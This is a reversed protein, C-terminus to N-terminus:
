IIIGEDELDKFEETGAEPDEDISIIWKILKRTTKTVLEKVGKIRMLVYGAFVTAITFMLLAMLVGITGYYMTLLTEM